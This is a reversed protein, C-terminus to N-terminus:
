SRLVSQAAGHLLSAYTPEVTTIRSVLFRRLVREDPKALSLVWDSAYSLPITYLFMIATWISTVAGGHVEGPLDMSEVKHPRLLLKAGMMKAIDRATFWPIRAESVVYEPGLEEVKEKLEADLRTRTSDAYFFLGGRSAFRGFRRFSARILRVKVEEGEALLSLKTDIPRLSNWALELYAARHGKLILSAVSGHIVRQYGYPRLFHAPKDGYGVFLVSRRM